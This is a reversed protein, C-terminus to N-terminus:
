RIVWIFMGLFACGYLVALLFLSIAFCPLRQSKIADIKHQEESTKNDFDEKRKEKKKEQKVTLVKDHDWIEQFGAIKGAIFNTRNWGTRVHMGYQWIMLCTYVSLGVGSLLIIALLLPDVTAEPRDLLYKVVVGLLGSMLAYLWSAITWLKDKMKAADDSFYKWLDLYDEPKLPIQKESM